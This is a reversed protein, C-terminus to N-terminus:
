NKLQGKEQFYNCNSNTLNPYMFETFTSGAEPARDGPDVDGHLKKQEFFNITSDEQQFSRGFKCFYSQEM